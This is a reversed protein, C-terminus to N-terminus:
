RTGAPDSEPSQAGRIANWVIRVHKVICAVSFIVYISYLIDFRMHLYASHERKM